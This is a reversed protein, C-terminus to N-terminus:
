ILTLAHSILAKKQEQELLEYLSKLNYREVKNAAQFLKLDFKDNICFKDDTSSVPENNIKEIANEIKTIISM